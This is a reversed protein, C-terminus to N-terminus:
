CGLFLEARLQTGYSLYGLLFYFEIMRQEHGLVESM